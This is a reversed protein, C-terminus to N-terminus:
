RNKWIDKELLKSMQVYGDEYLSMIEESSNIIKLLYDINIIRSQIKIEYPLETKGLPFLLHNYLKVLLISLHELLTSEETLLMESVGVTHGLSIGLVENINSFQHICKELPYNALFGGDVYCKGDQIIPKFLIPLSCSAYIADLIRWHGYNKYSMCESIYSNLETSYIFIEVGTEKFFEEITIDLSIDRSKLIPSLMNNILEINFIGKNHYIEIPTADFKEILHRWPRRIFYDVIDKIDPKLALVLALISGVSTAHISEIHCLDLVGQEICKTIAGLAQIGWVHGGSIVIHKFKKSEIREKEM